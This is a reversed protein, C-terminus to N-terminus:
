LPPLDPRVEVKLVFRQSPNKGVRGGLAQALLQHGFCIGILKVKKSAYYAPILENRLRMIWPSDDYASYRSGGIFIADFRGNEVDEVSPFEGKVACDFLTVEDDPHLSFADRFYVLTLGQWKESDDAELCALKLPRHINTTSAAHPLQETM